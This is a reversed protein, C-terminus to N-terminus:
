LLDMLIFIIGGIILLAGVITLAEVAVLSGLIITILGVGGLILGTRMYGTVQQSATVDKYERIKNKYSRFEQKLEKKLKRTTAKDANVQQAKALQRAKEEVQYEAQKVERAVSRIKILDATPIDAPETAIEEAPGLKELVKLTNSSNATINAPKQSNNEKKAYSYTDFFYADKYSFKKSSSCSALFFSMLVILSFLYNKKNM